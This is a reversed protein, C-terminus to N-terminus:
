RKGQNRNRRLFQPTFPNRADDSQGGRSKLGTIIQMGEALGDGQVATMTGDSIGAQVKIPRVYAGDPVWLLRRHGSDATRRTM